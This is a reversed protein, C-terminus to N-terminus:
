KKGELEVKKKLLRNYMQYLSSWEIFDMNDGLKGESFKKFFISSKMGYTHEFTKLEKDLRKIEVEYNKIKYDLMKSISQSIFPDEGHKEIFKELNKVKSLTRKM